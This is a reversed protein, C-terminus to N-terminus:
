ENPKVEPEKTAFEDKSNTFLNKLLYSSFAIVTVIVIKRLLNFDIKSDIQLENVIFTLLATIISYILGKFFDRKNLTLFKAKM